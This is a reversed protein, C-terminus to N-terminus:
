QKACVDQDTPCALQGECQCRDKWNPPLPLRPDRPECFSGEHAEARLSPHNFVTSSLPSITLVVLIVTLGSLRLANYRVIEERSPRIWARVLNGCRCTKRLPWLDIRENQDTLPLRSVGPVLV